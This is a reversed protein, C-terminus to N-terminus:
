EAYKWIFGGASKRKGKCCNSIHQSHVKTKQEAEKLSVYEAVFVGENTYQRVPKYPPKHPKVSWGFSFTNKDRKRQAISMHEKTLCNNQNEKRTVWRLNSPHNNLSDTDIHDIEAGEFWENEVLEPFTIAIWVAAQQTTVKRDKSLHWSIRGLSSVRNSLPKTKRKKDNGISICRGEKTDISILYQGDYGPVERWEGM